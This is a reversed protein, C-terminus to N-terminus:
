EDSAGLAALFRRPVAEGEDDTLAPYLPLSCASRWAERCGPLESLDVEPVLRGVPRRCAVGRQECRRLLDDLDPEDARVVFRFWAHEGDATPSPLEIAAAGLAARYDAALRARRALFEDLRTFQTRAVAAHLDTTKFNFAMADAEDVECDRLRRAREVITEDASLLLGGEGGAVLKTAYFSCVTVDGWSGVQRGRHRVGLTQACDEVLPPGLDRFAAIEAPRGFLHAVICAATRASLKRRADDPDANLTTPDCDVFTPTAGAYRVAQHLSACAYAPILVESGDGVGLGRLAALLAATGSCLAVATADAPRDPLLSAAVASELREVEPGQAIHGSRLVATVAGLERDGLLPRSHPILPVADAPGDRSEAGPMESSLPEKM